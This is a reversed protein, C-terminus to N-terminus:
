QVTLTFPGVSSGYGTVEIIYNGPMLQQVLQANLGGGGDDNYGLAAGAADYLRVTPDLGHGAVYITVVQPYAIALPYRVRHGPMVINGSASGGVGITGGMAGPPPCGTAVFVVAALSAVVLVAQVWRIGRMEFEEKSEPIATDLERELYARILFSKGARRDCREFSM